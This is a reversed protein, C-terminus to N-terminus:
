GKRATVPFEMGLVQHPYRARPPQALSLRPQYATKGGSESELLSANSRHPNALPCSRISESVCTDLCHGSKVAQLPDRFLTGAGATRAKKFLPLARATFLQGAADTPQTQERMLGVSVASAVAPDAKDPATPQAPQRLVAPGFLPVGTTAGGVM